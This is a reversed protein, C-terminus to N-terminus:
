LQESRLLTGGAQDSVLRAFFDPRETAEVYLLTKSEPFDPEVPEDEMLDLNRQLTLREEGNELLYYDGGRYSSEHASFKFKAATEIATRIADIDSGTFGYLDYNKM